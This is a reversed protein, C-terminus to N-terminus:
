NKSPNYKNTFRCNKRIEGEKGTLVNINGMRSMSLAFSRRFDEFSAAFEQTIQKTDDGFFLQQDVGLVAEKTLVRSYYSNTFSYKPGSAPNLFVLPDSQGKKLRPPCLKRQNALFSAKMSPDPKGTKNFKYLRDEIYSCHTKGMSHAGLLTAMDLVDLGKSKFYALAAEWSISPSPLDVSAATSTIGDNRGTLVPYSPAGALHVADRTALNLIDACSVVGPCRAELVTKIKDIFAFGGLGRNQPATKESKPGDLLISGDSGTVFCDSYQLRLLKAAITKDRKYFKEVQHRIYVEADVCTNHVRYYHWVLKVPPQLSSAGEVDVMCLSLALALLPFIVIMQRRM